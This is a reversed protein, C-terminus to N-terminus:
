VEMWSRTYLCGFPVKSETLLCVIFGLLLSGEAVVCFEKIEQISYDILDFFLGLTGRKLTQDIVVSDWFYSQQPWWM